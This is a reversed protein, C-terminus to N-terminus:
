RSNLCASRIQQGTANTIIHHRSHADVNAYNSFIANPEEFVIERSPRRFPHPQGCIVCTGRILVLLEHQNTSNTYNPPWGRGSMISSTGSKIM